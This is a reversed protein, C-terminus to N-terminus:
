KTISAAHAKQDDSISILIITITDETTDSMDIRREKVYYLEERRFGGPVTPLSEVGALSVVDGREPLTCLPGNYRDVVEGTTASELVFRLRPHMV